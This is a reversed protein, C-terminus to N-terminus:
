INGKFIGKGQMEVGHWDNGLREGGKRAYGQWATGLM